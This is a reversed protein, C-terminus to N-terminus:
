IKFDITGYTFMFSRKLLCNKMKILWLLYIINDCKSQLDLTLKYFRGDQNISLSSYLCSSENVDELDFPEIIEAIVASLFGKPTNHQLLKKIYVNGTKRFLGVCM